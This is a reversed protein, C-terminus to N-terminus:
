TNRTEGTPRDRPREPWGAYEPNLRRLCDPCVGHSFKARTHQRLHQEVERWYGQDDRIKKCRACIPLLASLTQVEDLVQELAAVSHRLQEEILKRETIEFRLVAIASVNGAADLVPTAQM